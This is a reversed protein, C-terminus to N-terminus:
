VKELPEASAIHLLACIRFRSPLGEETETAVLLNTTTLWAMEPHRIEYSLGNSMTIRFPEFPRQQLLDRITNLTM